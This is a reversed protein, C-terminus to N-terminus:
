CPPYVQTIRLKYEFDGFLEFIIRLVEFYPLAGEVPKDLYLNEEIFSIIAELFQIAEQLQESAQGNAIYKKIDKDTATRVRILFM